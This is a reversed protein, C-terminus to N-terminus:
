AAVETYNVAYYISESGYSRDNERLTIVESAIGNTMLLTEVMIKLDLGHRPFWQNLDTGRLKTNCFHLAEHGNVKRVILTLFSM